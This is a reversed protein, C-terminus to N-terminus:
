NPTPRISLGHGGKEAAETTRLDWPRYQVWGWVECEHAEWQDPALHLLVQVAFPLWLLDVARAPVGSALLLMRALPEMHRIPNMGWVFEEAPLGGACEYAYALDCMGGPWFCYVAGRGGAGKAKFTYPGSKM